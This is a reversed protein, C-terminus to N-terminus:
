CLIERLTKNLLSFHGNDNTLESRSVKVKKEDPFNPVIGMVEVTQRGYDPVSDTDEDRM